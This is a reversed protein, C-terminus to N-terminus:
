FLIGRPLMMSLVKTFVLYLAVIFVCSFVWGFVLMKKSKREPPTLLMIMCGLYIFGALVFGLKTYTFAYFAFLFISLGLFLPKRPVQRGLFNVMPAPKKEKAQVQAASKQRTVSTIFLAIALVIMVVAYILPLTRSSVGGSAYMNKSDIQNSSILYFIAFAMFGIAVKADRNLKM